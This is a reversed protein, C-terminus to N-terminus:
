FAFSSINFFVGVSGLDDSDVLIKSFLITSPPEQHYISSVGEEVFYLMDDLSQVSAKSPKSSIIDSPCRYIM